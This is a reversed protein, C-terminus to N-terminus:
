WRMHLILAAILLLIASLSQVGSSIPAFFTMMLVLITKRLLLVIEWHPFEEKYGQTLFGLRMRFRAKMNNYIKPDSYFKSDEMKALFRRNCCFGLLPMGFAWCVLGPIAVFYIVTMHLGTYCEQELDDYLRMTGEISTCNISQALYSVITPYFIFWIIAITSISKDLRQQRTMSGNCCCCLCSKLWWFIFSLVIVGIPLASFLYLRLYNYRLEPDPGIWYDIM